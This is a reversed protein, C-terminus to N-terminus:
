LFRFLGYRAAPSILLSSSQFAISRTSDSARILPPRDPPRFTVVSYGPILTSVFQRAPASMFGAIKYSVGRIVEGLAGARDRTLIVAAREDM